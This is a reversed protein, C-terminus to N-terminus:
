KISTDNKEHLMEESLEPKIPSFHAQLAAQLAHGLGNLDFQHQRYLGEHIFHALHASLGHGGFAKQSPWMGWTTYNGCAVVAGRNVFKFPTPTEGALIDPIAQRGVYRGEQRAVQATPPLPINSIRSCDGIAFIKPDQTTQLTPTVVLQNSRAIELGEFLSTAHGGQVGATWLRMKATYQRGSKLHISTEDVASVSEQTMVRFGLAELRTKADVSIEEPFANLLRPAAEVLMPRLLQQRLTPGFEEASDVAQCLEAALQVGTAGGGIIVFEFPEGTKKAENLHQRFEQHIHDAQELTNLFLCNEQVGPTGFDNARAGFAAVLYDYTLEEGNSLKLQRSPRHLSEPDAQIFHFGFREALEEFYFVNGEHLLTGAAFEHLAPKWIHVPHHDILTVTMGKRKALPIAVELGAIGGGLIVVHTENAM